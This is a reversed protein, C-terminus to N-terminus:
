EKGPQTEGYMAKDAKVPNFKLPVFISINANEVSPLHYLMYATCSGQGLRHKFFDLSM